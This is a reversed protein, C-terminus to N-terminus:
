SRPGAPRFLLPAFQILNDRWVTWNHIGPTEIAIPQLARTRLWAVFRRNPTILADETGCAIWLLSTAVKPDLSPFASEFRDYVVASSFGGIWAFTDAHNLGIVLSELGGMSLGAIARDERKASVRYGAEVQPVIEGLLAASFLGLNRAIKVEDNWQDFGGTVFSFDGYGMPMVVIMPVVRGKAILNDLVLNANGEHSWSDALFSWGHLLYLVPYLTHVSPNYGPPTYVYYDEAGDPLGTIVSSRYSHHHLVGHPVNTVDWIQPSGPVTVENELFILNPSVLRNLPDLIPTGDVELAYTHLAPQLPSTTFTWIGDAGKTMAIQHHDYDLGVTVKGALPAYYRITVSHDPNLEHSRLSPQQASAVM